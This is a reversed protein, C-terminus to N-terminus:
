LKEMLDFILFYMISDAWFNIVNSFVFLAATIFQKAFLYIFLCIEIKNLSMNANISKVFNVKIVVSYTRDSM